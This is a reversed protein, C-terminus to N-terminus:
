RKSTLLIIALVGVGVGAGIMLPSIKGISFGQSVPSPRIIRILKGDPSRVYTPKVSTGGRDVSAQQMLAQQYAQQQKQQEAIMDEEQRRAAKQDMMIKRAQMAKSALLAAAGVWGVVPIFSLAIPAVTTLISRFKKSLRFKGLGDVNESLYM